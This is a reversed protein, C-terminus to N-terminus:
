EKGLILDVAWCGRVHPGPGRLHALLHHPARLAGLCVPCTVWGRGPGAPLGRPTGACRPCKEQSPCGADELADALIPLAAWDREGYVRAAMGVAAPTFWPCPSFANLTGKGGCMKCSARSAYLGDPTAVWGDGECRPCEKAPGRPLTVPRFPNGVVDRLLAARAPLPDVPVVSQDCRAWRACAVRLSDTNGLDYNGWPRDNQGASERCAEVWLSLKRAPTVPRWGDLWHVNDCRPCCKEGPLMSVTGDFNEGWRCGCCRSVRRAAVRLMAAADESVVWEAETM